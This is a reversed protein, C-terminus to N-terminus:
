CWSQLQGSPSSLLERVNAEIIRYGVNGTLRQRDENFIFTPSARVNLERAQQNDNAMLAHAAGSDLHAQLAETDLGLENALGQIVAREAINANEAFFGQRLRWALKEAAGPAAQDQQEMLQVAHLHLHAPLSSRPPQSWIQPHIPVHGFQEAVEMVHRAYAALGGKEAWQKDFKGATDGFVPFFCYHFDVQDGFESQLEDIRAQSVYAWICLLDSFHTIQIAAM